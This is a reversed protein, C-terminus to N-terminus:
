TLCASFGETESSLWAPTEGRTNQSFHDNIKQYNKYQLDNQGCKYSVELYHLAPRLLSINTDVHPQNAKKYLVWGGVVLFAKPPAGSSKLFPLMFKDRSGSFVAWNISTPHMTTGEWSSIQLCSRDLLMVSIFLHLDGTNRFHCHPCTSFSPTISGKQLQSGFYSGM